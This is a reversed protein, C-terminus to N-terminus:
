EGRARYYEALALGQAVRQDTTSPRRPGPQGTAPTTAPQTYAPDPEDLWCRKNLWTAPLKTYAPDKGKRQYAYVLAADILTQPDAGLDNVAKTWAKEADGIDRRRPYVTWFDDFRAAVDTAAPRKPSRKRTKGTQPNENDAGASSPSTTIPTDPTLTDEKHIARHSGHEPETHATDPTVTLRTGGHDARHSGHEPESHATDEDGSDAGQSGQEPDDPPQLVAQASGQSPVQLRYRTRVRRVREADTPRIREIWGDAELDALHRKVTALSQGTEAALQALSPTHHPPTEATGADAIDSLVLMILRSPPPMTASRRVALNVRWTMGRGTVSAM